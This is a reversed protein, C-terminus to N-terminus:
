KSEYFIIVKGFRGVVKKMQSLFFDREDKDLNDFKISDVETVLDLM